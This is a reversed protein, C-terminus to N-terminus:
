QRKLGVGRGVCVGCSVASSQNVRCASTLLAKSHLKKTQPTGTPHSELLAGASTQSLEAAREVRGQTGGGERRLAGEMWAKYSFEQRLSRGSIWGSSASVEM